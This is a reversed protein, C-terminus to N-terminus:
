KAKEYRSISEKNIRQQLLQRARSYQSKSTGISIDLMSAIEKHSYGEIAYLNFIANCGAPLEQIFGLLEKFHYESLSFETELDNHMVEVDVMPFMYLKSRQSNLATNVVIRKIWSGLSSEGRFDKIRQFVKIFAEQLVDEAEQDSKTYRMAVVLMGSSYQTYLEKQASREGKICSEVLAKESHM